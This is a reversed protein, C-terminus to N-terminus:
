DRGLAIVPEDAREPEVDPDILADGGAGGRGISAWARLDQRHGLARRLVLRARYANAMERLHPDSAFIADLRANAYDYLLLDARNKERIRAIVDAPLEHGLHIKRDDEARNQREYYPLRWGFFRNFLSMTEDFRETVGVIAFRRELISVARRAAEDPDAAVRDEHWGMLYCTQHNSGWHYDVFRELTPYERFISRHLENDCGAVHNFHSVVRAVPERIMTAYMSPTSLWRHLGFTYHGIIVSPARKGSDARFERSLTPASPDFRRIERLRYNAVLTSFLTTGATKPIHVILLTPASERSRDCGATTPTTLDLCEVM